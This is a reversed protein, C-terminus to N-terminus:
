TRGRVVPKIGNVLAGTDVLTKTSGKKNEITRDSLNPLFNRKTIVDQIRKAHKLGITLLSQQASKGKIMERAERYFDSNIQSRSEDFSTGMFPRSPIKETGFENYAGYEAVSAGEGNNTGHQIGVAVELRQAKQMESFIRKMGLDRDQVTM